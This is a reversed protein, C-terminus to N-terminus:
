IIMKSFNKMSSIVRRKRCCFTGDKWGYFPNEKYGNRYMHAIETKFADKDVNGFTVRYGAKNLDAEIQKAAAFDYIVIMDGDIMYPYGTLDTYAIWLLNEEKIKDIILARYNETMKSFARMM